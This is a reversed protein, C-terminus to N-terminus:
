DAGAVVDAIAPVIARQVNSEAANSWIVITVDADLVYGGESLFGLTQGGHGLVGNNDFMGHAYITGEGLANVGADTHARMLDLSAPDSFLRGTFLAKLFLAFEDPTSVVAGASWGQSANWERTTFDYPSKFYAQPLPGSEPTGAEPVGIQLYTQTLGLPEIIRANLNKEYTQGTAEEIILGLLIYGTNSYSWLGEAGPEFTSLGSDAVLTVLEEPTFGRTLMEKDAAGDEITKGDETPLDFYDHLGSTHTLLMDITVVDGTIQDGYPM